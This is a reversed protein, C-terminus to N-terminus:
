PSRLCECNFVSKQQKEEWRKEVRLYVMDGSSGESSLAFYIFVGRFALLLHMELVSCKLCADFVHVDFVNVCMCKCVCVCVCVYVYVCVFICWRVNDFACESM